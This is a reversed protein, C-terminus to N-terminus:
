GVRPETARGPRRPGGQAWWSHGLYRAPLPVGRCAGGRQRHTSGGRPSPPTTSTSSLGHASSTGLSSWHPRAPGPATRGPVLRSPVPRSESSRDLRFAGSRLAGAPQPGTQKRVPLSSLSAHRRGGLARPPAPRDSAAGLAAIILRWNRIGQNAPGGRGVASHCFFSSIFRSDQPDSRDALLDFHM